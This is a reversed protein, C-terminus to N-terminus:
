WKVETASKIKDAQTVKLFLKGPWTGIETCPLKWAAMQERLVSFILPAICSRLGDSVELCVPTLVGYLAPWRM